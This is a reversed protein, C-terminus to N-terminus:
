LVCTVFSGLIRGDEGKAPSIGFGNKVWLRHSAANSIDCYARVQYSGSEKARRMCTRVLASGIGQGRREEDFVEVVNLFDEMLGGVPAPIERRFAFCLGLVRDGERALLAYAAPDRNWMVARLGEYSRLLGDIDQESATVIEM